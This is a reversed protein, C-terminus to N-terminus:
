LKVSPLDCYSTTSFLQDLNSQLEFRSSMRMTTQVFPHQSVVPAPKEDPVSPETSSCSEISAAYVESLEEEVPPQCEQYTWHLSGNMDTIRSCCYKGPALALCSVLMGGDRQYPQVMAVKVGNLLVEVDCPALLELKNARRTFGDFRRRWWMIGKVGIRRLHEEKEERRRDLELEDDKTSKPGSSSMMGLMSHIFPKYVVCEFANMRVFATWGHGGDALPTQGVQCDLDLNRDDVDFLRQCAYLTRPAACWRVSFSGISFRGVYQSPLSKFAVLPAVLKRHAPVSSRSLTACVDSWAVM